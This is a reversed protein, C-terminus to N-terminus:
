SFSRRNFASKKMCLLLEIEIKTGRALAPSFFLLLFHKFSILALVMRTVAVQICSKM